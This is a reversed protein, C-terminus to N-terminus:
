VFWEWSALSLWSYWIYIIWLASICCTISTFTYWNLTVSVKGMINYFPIQSGLLTMTVALPNLVKWHHIQLEWHGQDASPRIISYPPTHCRAVSIRFGSPTFRHNGAVRIQLPDSAPHHPCEPPSVVLINLWLLLLLFQVPNPISCSCSLFLLIFSCLLTFIITIFLSFFFLFLVFHGTLNYFM